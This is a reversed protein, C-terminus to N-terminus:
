IERGIIFKPPSKGFYRALRIVAYCVWIQIRWSESGQECLWKAWVFNPRFNAPHPQALWYLRTEFAPFARLYADPTGCPYWLFNFYRTPFAIYNVCAGLGLFRKNSTRVNAFSSVVSQVMLDANKSAKVATYTAPWDVVEEDV